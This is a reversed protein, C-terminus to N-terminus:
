PRGHFFGIPDARLGDRYKLPGIGEGVMGPLIRPAGNVTVSSNQDDGRRDTMDIGVASTDIEFYLIGGPAGGTREAHAVAARVLEAREVIRRGPIKSFEDKATRAGPMRRWSPF